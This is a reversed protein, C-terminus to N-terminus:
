LGGFGTAKYDVQPEQRACLMSVEHVENKGMLSAKAVSVLNYSLKPVYLVDCLACSKVKGNPLVM